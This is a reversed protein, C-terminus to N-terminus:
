ELHFQKNKEKTPVIEIEIGRRIVGHKSLANSIRYGGYLAIPWNDETGFDPVYLKMSVGGRDVVTKVQEIIDRDIEICTEAPLGGMNIDLFTNGMTSTECILAFILLPIASNLASFRRTILVLGMFVLLFGMFAPGILVDCRAIYGPASAGSLIILYIIMLLLALLVQGMECLEQKIESAKRNRISFIITLLVIALIVGAFWYNVAYAKRWLIDMASFIGQYLSGNSVSAARGGSMEFIQQIMWLVFVSLYGKNGTIYAGLHLKGTRLEKCLALLLKGGIYAMLVVSSFLNSFICLYVFLYFLGKSIATKEKWLSRNNEIRMVEMVAICNMLAPLVYNYYCTVNSTYFLHANGTYDRRFILFHFVVFLTAYSIAVESSVKFKERLLKIFTIVYALIIVSVFVGHGWILADVYDGAIPYIIDAALQSIVAMMIEPFLKAPNWDGWTPIASRIAFIYNWDDTDFIVMPHIIVFFTVFFGFLLLGYILLQVNERKKQM